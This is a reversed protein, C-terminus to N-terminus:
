DKDRLDITPISNASHFISLNCIFCKEFIDDSNTIELQFEHDKGTICKKM